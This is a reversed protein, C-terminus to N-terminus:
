NYVKARHGATIIEVIRSKKTVKYIIRYIGVKYSFRGKLERKLPKGLLPNEKIELMAELIAIKKTKSIKKLEKKAQSSIRLKYM